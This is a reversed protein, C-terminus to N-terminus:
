WGVLKTSPLASYRNSFFRRDLQVIQARGTKDDKMELYNRLVDEAQKTYLPQRDDNALMMLQASLQKLLYDTNPFWPVDSTDTIDAKQPQYRVTVPYAGSPPPWVYLVPPDGDSTPSMDTAYYVPYSDLGATQVMGDLEFLEVNIMRYKVGQITYFVETYRARLYDAPLDFAQAGNALTAVASTDFNFTYTKRIVDFDYTQALDQLTSNLLQLAQATYGPVKATQCALTIIQAATLAM